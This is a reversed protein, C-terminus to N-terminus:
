INFMVVCYLVAGLMALVAVLLFIKDLVLALKMWDSIQDNSGDETSSDQIVSVDRRPEYADTLGDCPLSERERQENRLINGVKENDIPLGDTTLLQSSSRERDTNSLESQLTQNSRYIFKIFCFVFDQLFFSFVLM